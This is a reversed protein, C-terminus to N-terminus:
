HPLQGEKLLEAKIDEDAITRLVDDLCRPDALCSEVFGDGGMHKLLSISAKVPDRGANREFFREMRVLVFKKHKAVRRKQRNSPM